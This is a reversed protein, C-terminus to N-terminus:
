KRNHKNLRAILANMGGNSLVGAFQSRYSQVISVNEISFDYVKWSNGTRVVNYTVPIRQGNARVIVSRVNLTSHGEYNGRAPYFQVRDRNYSSLASAYTTTVLYSFEKKFTAKQSGSAQRWYRGVVSASMRNLDVHPLLIRNVIGRIVSFNSLRSKNKELSSIMRNAIDQLQTVPSQVAFCSTTVFFFLCLGAFVRM